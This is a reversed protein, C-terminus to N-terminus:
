SPQTGEIMKVIKHLLLDLNVPKVIYAKAQAKYAAEILHEDTMSSFLAIVVARDALEVKIRHCLEIGDIDPLDWDTLILHPRFATHRMLGEAGTSASELHYPTQRAILDAIVRRLLRDDSIHLIRKPEAPASPSETEEPMGEGLLFPLLHTPRIWQAQVGPTVLFDFDEEGPESLVVIREPLSDYAEPSFHKLLYKASVEGYQSRMLLVDPETQKCLDALNEETGIFDIQFDQVALSQQIQHRQDPSDIVALIFM